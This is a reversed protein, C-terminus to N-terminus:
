LSPEAAAGSSVDIELKDLAELMGLKSVRTGNRLNDNLDSLM